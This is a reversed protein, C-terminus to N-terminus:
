FKLWTYSLARSLRAVLSKNALSLALAPNRYHRSSSAHTVCFLTYPPLRSRPKWDYEPDLIDSVDRMDALVTYIHQINLGIRQMDNCVRSYEYNTQM